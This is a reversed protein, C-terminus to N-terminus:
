SLQFLFKIGGVEIFDGDNLETQGSLSKGNLKPYGDKVATLLYGTPRKSILAAIDPAFM